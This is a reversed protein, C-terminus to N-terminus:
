GGYVNCDKCDGNIIVNDPDLPSAMALAFLGLSFLLSILKM